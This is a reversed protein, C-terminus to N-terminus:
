SGYNAEDRQVNSLKPFCASGSIRFNVHLSTKLYTCPFTRSQKKIFKSSKLFLCCKNFMKLLKNWSIPDFYRKPNLVVGWYVGWLFELRLFLKKFLFIITNIRHVTKLIIFKCLLM